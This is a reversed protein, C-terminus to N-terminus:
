ERARGVNRNDIRFHALDPDQLMRQVHVPNQMWESLTIGNVVCYKEVLEAPYEALHPMDKSGKVGSNQRGKCVDAIAKLHDTEVFLLDRIGDGDVVFERHRYM